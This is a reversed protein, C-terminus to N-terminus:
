RSEIVVFRATSLKDSDYPRIEESKYGSYYAFFKPVVMYYKKGGDWIYAKGFVVVGKDRHVGKIDCVAVDAVSPNDADAKCDMWLLDKGKVRSIVQSFGSVLQEESVPFDAPPKVPPVIEEAM